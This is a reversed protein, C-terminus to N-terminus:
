FRLTYRTALVLRGGSPADSWTHGLEVRFRSHANLRWTASVDLRRTAEDWPGKDEGYLRFTSYRQDNFRAAVSFRPTLKLSSEVFWADARLDVTDPSSFRARAYEAWVQLHRFEWTFDAIVLKQRYDGRARGTPLYTDENAYAGESASLGISWRLDPQWALRAAWTPEDFGTKHIPWSEPRSMPATNKLEVAWELKAWKGSAALGTAYAPGWILPNYDYNVAERPYALAYYSSPYVDSIRTPQEYLLPATVFPNDWSLHRRVWQGAVTAFQGAQLSLRGDAWPTYRLAYEDLRVRLDQGAPDFGRDLRVQAFGYLPTGAQVDLFVTARPQLSLNSTSRILGPAPKEFVYAELDIVSSLRARMGGDSTAWSLHRSWDDLLADMRAGAPEACLTLLGVLLPTPLFPKM